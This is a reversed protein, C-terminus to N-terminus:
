NQSAEATSSFHFFKILISGKGKAPIVDKKVQLSRSIGANRADEKAFFPLNQVNM